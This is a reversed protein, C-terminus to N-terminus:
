RWNPELMDLLVNESIEIEVQNALEAMLMSETGLVLYGVVFLGVAYFVLLAFVKM